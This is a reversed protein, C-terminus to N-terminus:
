RKRHDCLRGCRRIGSGPLHITASVKEMPFVWEVGTVNWYLEDQPENIHLWHDTHYTLTYSHRGAPVHANENGIYTRTMNMMLGQSEGLHYPEPQGDRTVEKVEFPCKKRFWWKNFSVTPFDRYIGHEIKDGEATVEVTETVDLSGDENITIDSHFSHIIEEAQVLSGSVTMLVLFLARLLSM